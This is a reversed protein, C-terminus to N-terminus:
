VVIPAESKEIWLLNRHDTELVLPKGRLYYAFHKVAFFIAYGEKKFMDWRFAQESFKKSAFGIVEHSDEKGDVKRIQFLVSGVAVESADVRMIWELEYDPFHLVTSDVLAKKVQEFAKPYDKAWSARNWDFNQHAMDHLPATLESFNPIFNKFFLAAGLFRQMSKQSTPMPFKMMEDKREADLGYKGPEVQYGFFKVILFGLWTKAFKLIVNHQACRELFMTLKSLADAHDHALILVNDFICICWTSFDSFMKMVYKQLYGSAPSVGEPLLMPEVLGWPTQVALKQRTNEGLPIQHFSNTLDLDLFM